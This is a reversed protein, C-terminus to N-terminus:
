RGIIDATFGYDNDYGDNTKVQHSTQNVKSYAKTVSVSWGDSGGTYQTDYDEDFGTGEKWLKVYVYMKLGPLDHNPLTFITQANKWFSSHKVQFEYTTPGVDGLYYDYYYSHDYSGSANLDDSFPNITAEEAFAIVGSVTFISIVILILGMILVKKNM